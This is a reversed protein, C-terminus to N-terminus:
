EAKNLNMRRRLFSGGAYLFLATFLIIAMILILSFIVAKDNLFSRVGTFTPLAGIVLALTTLGFAFGPLGPFMNAVATLTVPMTMNFLIVGAIAILPYDWGLEILPVSILLGSITVRTWGFRDSLFGGIGKGFAVAASLVIILWTTSKWPFDLTLGILSRIAVSILLLILITSFSRKYKTEILKSESASPCKVVLIAIVAIAFLPIFVWPTFDRTKGYLTGVALGIAGPAVFIGPVAAKKNSMRLSIIGGGVHFAANGVGATITAALPIKFLFLSTATLICGLSASYAPVDMLDALIGIIPQLGFALLNYVIIITVFYDTKLSLSKSGAFLVAACAADVLTHALGFVVLNRTIFMRSLSFGNVKRENM